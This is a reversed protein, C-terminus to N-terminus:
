AATILAAELAATDEYFHYMIIMGQEIRAILAWDSPFLHGTKRATHCFTGFFSVYGDGGFQATVTFDGPILAEAFSRFFHEAGARGEYTGYLPVRTDPTPRAGIFRAQPHVLALALPMEGAFIHGLFNQVLEIDSM